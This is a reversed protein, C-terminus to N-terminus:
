KRRFFVSNRNKSKGIKLYQWFFTLLFFNSFFDSFSLQKFNGSSGLFWMEPPPPTWPSSHRECFFPIQEDQMKTAGNGFTGQNETLIQRKGFFFAHFADSSVECLLSKQCDSSYLFFWVVHLENTSSFFLIPNRNNDTDREPFFSTFSRFESFIAFKSLRFLVCLRCSM